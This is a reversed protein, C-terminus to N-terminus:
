RKQGDCPWHETRPYPKLGCEYAYFNQYEWVLIERAHRLWSEAFQYYAAVSHIERAQPSYYGVAWKNSLPEVFSAPEIVVYIKRPDLAASKKELEGGCLAFQHKVSDIADDILGGIGQPHNPFLKLAEITEGGMGKKVWKKLKREKIARPESYGKDNYRVKYKPSYTDPVVRPEGLFFTDAYQM